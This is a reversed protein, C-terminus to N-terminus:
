ASRRRISAVGGGVALYVVLLFFAIFGALGIASKSDQLQTAESVVVAPRTVLEWSNLRAFRGLSVGAGSAVSAAVVVLWGAIAGLHRAVVRHVIKLSLAGLLCGAWAFSILRALDLWPTPSVRDYHTLDSILYPANPLFALWVAGLVLAAVRRRHADLLEVGIAAIFPIWALFLNWVLFRHGIRDGLLVPGAFLVAAALACAAIASLVSRDNARLWARVEGM